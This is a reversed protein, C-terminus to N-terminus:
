PNSDHISFKENYSNILIQDITTAIKNTVSTRKNIVSMM